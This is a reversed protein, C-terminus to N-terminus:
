PPLLGGDFDCSGFCTESSVRLIAEPEADIAIIVFGTMPRAGGCYAAAEVGVHILGDITQVMYSVSAAPRDTTGVILLSQATLDVSSVLTAVDSCGSDNTWMTLQEPSRILATPVNDCSSFVDSSQAVVTFNASSGSTPALACGAETLSDATPAEVVVCGCGCDDRFPASGESTCTPLPDCEAATRGIYDDEDHKCDLTGADSGDSESAADTSPTDPNSADTTESASDGSSSSSSTFMTEEDTTTGAQSSVNSSGTERTATDTPAVTTWEFDDRTCVQVAENCGVAQACVADEELRQCPDGSTCEKTCVGCLCSLGPSCDQDDGCNSLWNTRTDTSNVTSGCASAFLVATISTATRLLRLSNWTLGAFPANM